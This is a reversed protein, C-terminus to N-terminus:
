CNYHLEYDPRDMFHRMMKGLFQWEVGNYAKNIDLKITTLGKKGM